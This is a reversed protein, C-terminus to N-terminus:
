APEPHRVALSFYLWYIWSLVSIALAVYPQWWALVSVSIYLALGYTAGRYAKMSSDLARADRVLPPRAKVISRHLAIWGTNHLSTNLCFCVIAPQAFPTNLYEAM